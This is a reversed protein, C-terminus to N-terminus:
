LKGHDTSKDVMFILDFHEFSFHFLTKFMPMMEISNIQKKCYCQCNKIDMETWPEQFTTRALFHFVFQVVMMNNGHDTSKDVMARLWDVRLFDSMHQLMERSTYTLRVTLNKHPNALPCTITKGDHSSAQLLALLKTPLAQPLSLVQLISCIPVFISFLTKSFVFWIKGKLPKPEEKIYICCWEKDLIFLCFFLVFKIEM